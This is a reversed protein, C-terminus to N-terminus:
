PEALGRQCLSCEVYSITGKELRRRLPSSHGTYAASLLWGLIQPGADDKKFFQMKVSMKKSYLETVQIMHVVKHLWRLRSAFRDEILGFAEM